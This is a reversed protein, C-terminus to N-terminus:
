AHRPMGKLTATALQPTELGAAPPHEPTEGAMLLAIGDYFLTAVEVALARDGLAQRTATGFRRLQLLDDVGQVTAADDGTLWDAGAAVRAIEQPTLRGSTLRQAVHTHPAWEYASQRVTAVRLAVHEVTREDVSSYLAAGTAFLADRMRPLQELRALLKTPRMDGWEPRPHMM